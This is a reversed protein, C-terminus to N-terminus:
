FRLGFVGIYEDYYFKQSAKDGHNSTLVDDMDAYGYKGLFRFFFGKWLSAEFGVKVSTSYGAVHWEDNREGGLLRVNSKPYLVGAGFGAFLAFDMKNQWNLLPLYKETELSIMNFGDTHEYSLFDDSLVETDGDSYDRVIGNRNIEGSANVTQDEVMVYKMHDFGLSISWNDQIFYGFRWNYQPITLRGPNLYSHFVQHVNVDNQRDKAKVDYLTFDHGEGHFHIDSDSYTANNWGWYGYFDGQRRMTGAHAPMFVISLFLSVLAPQWLKVAASSKETLQM